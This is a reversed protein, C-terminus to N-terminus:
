LFLKMWKKWNPEVIEEASTPKRRFSLSKVIEKDPMVIIQEDPKALGLKNRVQEQTYQETEVEELSDQLEKNTLKLDALIERTNQIRQQALRARRFNKIVSFLLLFIVIFYIYKELRKLM